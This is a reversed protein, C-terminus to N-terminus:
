YVSVDVIQYGLSKFWAEYSKFNSLSEVEPNVLEHRSNYALKFGSGWRTGTSTKVGHEEVYKNLGDVKLMRRCVGALGSSATQKPFRTDRNWYSCCVENCVQKVVKETVESVYVTCAPLAGLESYTKLVAPRIHMPVLQRAIKQLDEKHVYAQPEGTTHGDKLLMMEFTEKGDGYREGGYVISIAYGDELEILHQIGDTGIKHFKLRNPNINILKDM